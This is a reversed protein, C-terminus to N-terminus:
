GCKLIENYSSRHKSTFDVTSKLILCHFIVFSPPYASFPEFVCEYTSGIHSLRVVFLLVVLASEHTRTNYTFLYTNTFTAYKHRNIYELLQLFIPFIGIFKISLNDSFINLMKRIADIKNTSKHWFSLCWFSTFTCCYNTSQMCQDHDIDVQGKILYNVYKRLAFLIFPACHIRRNLIIQM